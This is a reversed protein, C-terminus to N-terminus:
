CWFHGSLCLWLANHHQGIEHVLHKRHWLHPKWMEATGHRGALANGPTSSSSHGWCRGTSEPLSLRSCVSSQDQPVAKPQVAWGEAEQGHWPSPEQPSTASRGLSSLRTLCSGESRGKPGDQGTPAAPAPSPSAAAIRRPQQCTSPTHPEGAVARPQDFSLWTWDPFRSAM